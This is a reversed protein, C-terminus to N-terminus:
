NGKETNRIFLAVGDVQVPLLYKNINDNKDYQLKRKVFESVTLPHIDQKLKHLASQGPQYFSSPTLRDTLVGDASVYQIQFKDSVNDFEIDPEIYHEKGVDEYDTNRIGFHQIQTNQTNSSGRPSLAEDFITSHRNSGNPKNPKISDRISGNPTGSGGTSFPNNGGGTSISGSPRVTQGTIEERIEDNTGEIIPQTYTYNEYLRVKLDFFALEIEEWTKCKRIENNDFDNGYNFPVFRKIITHFKGKRVVVIHIPANAGQRNYISGDIEIIGIVDHNAYLYEFFNQKSPKFNYYKIPDPTLLSGGHILIGLGGTKIYKEFNYYSIGEEISNLVGWKTKVKANDLYSGFPPNTILVDISNQMEPLQLALANQDFVRIHKIYGDFRNSKSELYKLNVLRIFSMENLLLSVNPNDNRYRYPSILLGNGATPELISFKFKSYQSTDKIYVSDVLTSILYALPFPTSYQNLITSESTRINLNPQSNYLKVLSDFQKNGSKIHPVIEGIASFMASEFAEQIIKRKFRDKTVDFGLKIGLNFIEKNNIPQIDNQGNSDKIAIWKNIILGYLERVLNLYGAVDFGSLKIWEDYNKFKTSERGHELYNIEKVENKPNNTLDHVQSLKRKYNDLPYDLNSHLKASIPIPHNGHKYGSLTHQMYAPYGTSGDDVDVKAGSDIAIKEIDGQLSVGNDLGGSDIVHTIYDVPSLNNLKDIYSNYSDIASESSIDGLDSEIGYYEDLKESPTKAEKPKKTKPKEEEYEIEEKPKQKIPKKASNSLAKNRDKDSITLNNKIRLTSEPKFFDSSYKFDFFKAM